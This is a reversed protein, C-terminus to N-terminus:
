KGGKGGDGDGPAPAPLLGKANALLGKQTRADRMLRRAVAIADDWGLGVEKTPPKKPSARWAEIQSILALLGADWGELKDDLSRM